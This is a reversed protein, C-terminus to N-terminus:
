NGDSTTSQKDQDVSISSASGSLEQKAHDALAKDIQSMAHPSYFTIGKRGKSIPPIPKTILIAAGSKDKSRYFDKIFYGEGNFSLKEDKNPFFKQINMTLEIYDEVNASFGILEAKIEDVKKNTGIHVAYNETQIGFATGKMEMHNCVAIIDKGEKEPNCVFGKAEIQKQTMKFTIGNHGDVAFASLSSSFLLFGVLMNKNNM